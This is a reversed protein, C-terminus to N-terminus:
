TCNFFSRSTKSPSSDLSSRRGSGTFTLWDLGLDRWYRSEVRSSKNRAATADKANKEFSNVFNHVAPSLM